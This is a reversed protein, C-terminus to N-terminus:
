STRCGCKSSGEHQLSSKVAKITTAGLAAATAGAKVKVSEEKISLKSSKKTSKTSTKKTM